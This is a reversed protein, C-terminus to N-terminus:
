NKGSSGGSWMEFSGWITDIIKENPAFDKLNTGVILIYNDTVDTGVLIRMKGKGETPHETLADAVAYDESEGTLKGATVKEGLGELFAVAADLLDDKTLTKDKYALLYIDLNSPAPTTLVAIDMGKYTESELTSGVPVYFGYGKKKDYIYDWNKPVPNSSSLTKKTPKQALTGTSFISLAIFVFVASLLINFIRNNKM